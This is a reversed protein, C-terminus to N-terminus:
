KSDRALRYFIKGFEEAGYPQCLEYVTQGIEVWPIRKHSKRAKEVIEPISKIYAELETEATDVQGLVVNLGADYVAHVNEDGMNGTQDYHPRYLEDDMEEIMENLKDIKEDFDEGSEDIGALPADWFKWTGEAGNYYFLWSEKGDALYSVLKAVEPIDKLIWRTLNLRTIEHEGGSETKDDQTLPLPKGLMPVYWDGFRVLIKTFGDKNKKAENFSVEHNKM